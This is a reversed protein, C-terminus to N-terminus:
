SAVKNPDVYGCCLCRRKTVTGNKYKWWRHGFILYILNKM